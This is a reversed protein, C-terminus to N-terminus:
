KRRAYEGTFGNKLFFARICFIVSIPLLHIKFDRTDPIM